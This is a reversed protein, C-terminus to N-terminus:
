AFATAEKVECSKLTQTIHQTSQSNRPPLYVIGHERLKDPYETEELGPASLSLGVLCIQGVM